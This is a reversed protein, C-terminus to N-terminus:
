RSPRTGPASPSLFRTVPWDRSRPQAKPEAVLAVALVAVVAVALVLGVGRRHAPERDVLEGSSDGPM